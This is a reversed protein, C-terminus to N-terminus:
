LCTVGPLGSYNNLWAELVVESWQADLQNIVDEHYRATQWEEWWDLHYQLHDRVETFMLGLHPHVSIKLLSVLVERLQEPVMFSGGSLDKWIWNLLVMDQQSGAEEVVMGNCQSNSHSIDQYDDKVGPLGNYNNCWADVVVEAWQADLQNVM